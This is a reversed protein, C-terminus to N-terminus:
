DTLLVSETPRPFCDLFELEDQCENSSSLTSSTEFFFLDPPEELSDFFHLELSGVSTVNPAVEGGLKSLTSTHLGLLDLADSCENYFPSMQLLEHSKFSSLQCWVTPTLSVLANLRHIRSSTCQLSEMVLSVPHVGHSYNIMIASLIMWKQPFHKLSYRKHPFRRHYRSWPLHSETLISGIALCTDWFVVTGFFAQITISSWCWSSALNWLMQANTFLRFLQSSILMWLIGLLCLFSLGTNQINQFLSSHSPYLINDVTPRPNSGHFISLDRGFLHLTKHFFEEQLPCDSSVPPLLSIIDSSAPETPTDCTCYTCEHLHVPAHTSRPFNILRSRAFPCMRVYSSNIKSRACTYM